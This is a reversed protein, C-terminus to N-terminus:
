FRSPLWWLRMRLSVVGFTSIKTPTRNESPKPDIIGRYAIMIFLRIKPRLWNM